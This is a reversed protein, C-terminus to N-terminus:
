NIRKHENTTFCQTKKIHFIYSVHTKRCLFVIFCMHKSDRIVDIHQSRFFSVLFKKPISKICGKKKTRCIRKSYPKTLIQNKELNKNSKNKEINKKDLNFVWKVPLVRISRKYLFIVVAYM